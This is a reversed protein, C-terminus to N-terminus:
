GREMSYRKVRGTSQDFSIRKWVVTKTFFAIKVNVELTNEDLLKLNGRLYKGFDPSYGQGNKYLANGSYVMDRICVLGLLLQDRLSKDPNRVDKRPQGNEDNPHELWVMKGFYADGERFFEIITQQNDSLWNGLIQDGNLEQAISGNVLFLFVLTFRFKM